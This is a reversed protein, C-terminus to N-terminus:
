GLVTILARCRRLEEIGQMLHEHDTAFIANRRRAYNEIRRLRRISRDLTRALKQQPM